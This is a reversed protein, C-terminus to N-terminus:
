TWVLQALTQRQCDEKAIAELIRNGVVLRLQNHHLAQDLNVALHARVLAVGSTEHVDHGEVLRLLVETQKKVSLSAENGTSDSRFLSGVLQAPDALNENARLCDRHQNGMVCPCDTERVGVDLDVIGDADVDCIGLHPGIKANSEVVM